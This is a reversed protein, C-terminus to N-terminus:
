KDTNFIDAEVKWKSNKKKWVVVYKGSITMSTGEDDDLNLVFTGVDFAMDRSNAVEVRTPAFHLSFGPKAMLAKWLARVEDKGTAIPANFPMASGTESYFSAFREADKNQAALSWQTDLDRIVQEDTKTSASGTSNM